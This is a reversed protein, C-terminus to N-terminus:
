TYLPSIRYWWSSLFRSSTPCEMRHEAPGDLFSEGTFGNGIQIVGKFLGGVKWRGRIAAAKDACADPDGAYSTVGAVYSLGGSSGNAM